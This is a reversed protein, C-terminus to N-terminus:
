RLLNQHRVGRYGKPFDRMHVNMNSKFGPSPEDLDDITVYNNEVMYRLKLRVSTVDFAAPKM